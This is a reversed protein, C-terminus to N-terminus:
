KCIVKLAALIRWMHQGVNARLKKEKRTDGEFHTLNVRDPNITALVQGVLTDTQNPKQIAAFADALQGLSLRDISTATLQRPVGKKGIVIIRPNSSLAEAKLYRRCREELVQTAKKFAERWQGRTVQEYVPGVLRRVRTPLTEIDPLFMKLALDVPAIRERVENAAAVYLGARFEQLMEMESGSVQRSTPVCIAFQTDANCSSAYRTWDQLAKRSLKATVEVILTTGHRACVLTPRNPFGVEFHERKVKYGNNAFFRAASEAHEVLDISVTLFPGVPV